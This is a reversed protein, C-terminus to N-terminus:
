LVKLVMIPIESSSLTPSYLNATPAPVPDSFAGFTMAGSYGCPAFYLANTNFPDPAVFNGMGLHPDAASVWGADSFRIYNMMTVLAPNSDTVIGLYAMQPPVDTVTSTFGYLGATTLTTAGFDKILAGPGGGTAEAALAMRANLTAHTTGLVTYAGAFSSTEWIPFPVWYATNAALTVKPANNAWMMGYPPVYQGSMWKPPKIGGFPGCQSGGPAPECIAVGQTWGM